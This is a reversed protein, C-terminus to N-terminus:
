TNECATTLKEFVDRAFVRSNFSTEYTQRAALGMETRRTPSDLLWTLKAKLDAVDGPAFLLADKGDTVYEDIGATASVVVPKGSRMGRNLVVQGSSVDPHKLAVVVISAGQLLRQFDESSIDRYATVHDPLESTLPENKPAVIIAPYGLQSLAGIVTAFDRNTRGGSFIYGGDTSGYLDDDGTGGWRAYALKGAVKPFREKISDIVPLTNCVILDHGLLASYTLREKIWGVLGAARPNPAFGVWALRGRARRRLVRSVLGLWYGNRHYYNIVLRYRWVHPVLRVMTSLPDLWYFRVVDLFTRKGQVEVADSCHVEVSYRNELLQKLEILAPELHPTVLLVDAPETDPSKVIIAERPRLRGARTEGRGSEM